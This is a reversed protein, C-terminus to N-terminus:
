GLYDNNAYVADAARIHRERAAPYAGTYLGGSVVYSVLASKLGLRSRATLFAADLPGERPFFYIDPRHTLLHLM